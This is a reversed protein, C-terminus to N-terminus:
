SARGRNQCRHDGLAPLSPARPDPTTAVSFSPPTISSSQSALGILASSLRHGHHPAATCDAAHQDTRALAGAFRRRRRPRPRGADGVGRRPRCLRPRPSVSPTGVLVPVVVTSDPAVRFYIGPLTQFGSFMGVVKGTRPDVVQATVQGNTTIVIPDTGKNHIRLAGRTHHGSAVVIPADLEVTMVAPDMEAIDNPISASGGSARTRTIFSASLSSAVDDGFQRHLEEAADTAWPALRIRFPPNRSEDVRPDPYAHLAGSGELELLVVRLEDRVAMTVSPVQRAAGIRGVTMTEGPEAIRAQGDTRELSLRLM